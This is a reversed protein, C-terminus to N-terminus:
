NINRVVITVIIVIVRRYRRIVRNNIIEIILINNNVIKIVRIRTINNILNLYIRPRNEKRNLRKSGSTM